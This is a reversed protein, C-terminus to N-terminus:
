EEVEVEESAFFDESEQKSASHLKIYADSVLDREKASLKGWILDRNNSDVPQGRYKSLARKWLETSLSGKGKFAEVTALYETATLERITVKDADTVPRDKPTGPLTYTLRTRM